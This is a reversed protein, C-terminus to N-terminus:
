AASSRRKKAQYMAADGLRLLGRGDQAHDPYLSIGISASISLAIGDSTLFPRELEQLIKRAVEAADDYRDVDPLLIVFEDGGVRAATDSARLVDGMRKAVQQLLWDGMEHGHEDNVPKFRDLDVFMVAVKSGKRQASALVQQMRDELMRRNPLNTLRDHYAMRRIEAEATQRAVSNDRLVAIAALMQAVEDDYKPTPIRIDLDGEAISVILETTRTVPQLVRRHLIWWTAALLSIVLGSGVTFYLSSRRTKALEIEADALAEDLLVNRLTIIAEMDPVYRSAFEATTIDFRGRAGAALQEEVFPMARGFYAEVMVDTAGKIVPSADTAAARATLQQRLQEIRGRLREVAFREEDTLNKQTAIPATFQSGLRGAFERLDAAQRAAVLADTAAPIKQVAENTLRIAVPTLDDVVGIMEAVIRRLTKADRESRAKGAEQDVAIRAQDLHVRALRGREVVSGAAHELERLLADFTADTRLRAKELNELNRSNGHGDDGLVANAPGRERSAMEATNLTARLQLIAQRGALVRSVDGGASAVVGVAAGLVALSLSFTSFFILHKLRM